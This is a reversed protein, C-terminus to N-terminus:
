EHHYFIPITHTTLLRHNEREDRQQDVTFDEKSKTRSEQRKGELQEGVGSM